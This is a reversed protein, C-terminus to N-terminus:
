GDPSESIWATEMRPEIMQVTSTKTLVATELDRQQLTGKEAKFILLYDASHHSPMKPIGQKEAAKQRTTKPDM